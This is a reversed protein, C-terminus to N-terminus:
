IFALHLLAPILELDAAINLLKLGKLISSENSNDLLYISALCYIADNNGFSAAYKLYYFAINFDQNLNAYSGNKGMYFEWGIQYLCNQCEELEDKNTPISNIMNNANIIEERFSEPIEDNSIIDQISNKKIKANNPPNLAQIFISIRDSQNKSKM